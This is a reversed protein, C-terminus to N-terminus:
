LIMMCKRNVGWKHPELNLILGITLLLLLTTKKISSCALRSLRAGLSFVVNATSNNVKWSDINMNM